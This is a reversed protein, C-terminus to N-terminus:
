CSRESGRLRASDGFGLPHNKHLRTDRATIRLRCPQRHDARVPELINPMALQLHASRTKGRARVAQSEVSRLTRLNQSIYQSPTDTAISPVNTATTSSPENHSYRWRQFMNKMPGFSHSHMLNRSVDYAGGLVQALILLYSSVPTKYPCRPYHLPLLNTVVYALFVSMAIVGVMLCDSCRTQSSVRRPRHLIPLTIHPPPHSTTWCDNSRASSSEWSGLSGCELKSRLLASPLHLTHKSGNKEDLCDASYLSQLSSQHVM